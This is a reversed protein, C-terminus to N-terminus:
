TGSSVLVPRPDPLEARLPLPLTELLRPMPPLISRHRFEARAAAIGVLLCWMTAVKPFFWLDDLLGHVAFGCVTALAAALIADQRAMRRFLMLPALLVGVTAFLLPLGGEVVAQLYVNNAHTKVNPVGASGISDEFNGAGIGLIPRREWLTIAASWLMTRTGIRGPAAEHSASIFYALARPTYSCSIVLGSVAASLILAALRGRLPSRVLGILLGFEIALSLLGARSYTLTATFTLAVIAAITAPSFRRAYQVGGVAVFPFVLALWGCLQNPGELVGAVRPIRVGGIMVISKAGIYFDAIASASVFLVLFPLARMVTNVSAVAALRWAVFVLLSYEASKGTERMADGVNAAQLVSIATALCLAGFWILLWKSERGVPTGRKRLVDALAAASLGLLLLKPVTVSTSYVHPGTTLLESIFLAVFAPTPAKSYAKFAAIVIAAAVCAELVRLETVSVGGRVRRAQV